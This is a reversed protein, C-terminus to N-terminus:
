DHKKEPIALTKKIDSELENYESSGALVYAIDGNRDILFTWPDGKHGWMGVTAPERYGDLHIFDMDKGYKKQFEMDMALQVDCITCHIPSAFQLLIPRHNKLSNAMSTSHMNCPKPALTCLDEGKVTDSVTKNPLEIAKAGVQPRFKGDQAKNCGNLILSIILACLILLSIKKM